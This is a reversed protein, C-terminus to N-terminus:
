SKDFLKQLHLAMVLFIAKEITFLSKAMEMEIIWLLHKMAKESYNMQSILIM